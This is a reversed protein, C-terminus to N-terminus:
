GRVLSEAHPFAIAIRAADDTYGEEGGEECSGDTSWHRLDFERQIQGRLPAILPWRMRVILKVSRLDRSMGVLENGSSTTLQVIRDIAASSTM